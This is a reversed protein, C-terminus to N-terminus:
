PVSKLVRRLHKQVREDSETALRTELFARAGDGHRRRVREADDRARQLRRRWRALRRLGFPTVSALGLFALLAFIPVLM